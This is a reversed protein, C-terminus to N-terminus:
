DKSAIACVRAITATPTATKRWIPFCCCSGTPTKRAEPGAYAKRAYLLATRYRSLGNHNVFCRLGNVEFPTLLRREEATDLLALAKKPEEFSIGEIYESTYVSDRGSTELRSHGTHCASLLFAVWLCVTIIYPEKADNNYDFQKVDSLNVTNEGQRHVFQRFITGMYTLNEAFTIFVGFWTQHM